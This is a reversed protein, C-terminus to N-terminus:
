WVVVIYNHQFSNYLKIVTPFFAATSVDRPWMEENGVVLYEQNWVYSMVSESIKSGKWVFTNWQYM